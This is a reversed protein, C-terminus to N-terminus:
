SRPHVYFGVVLTQLGLKGLFCLLEQALLASSRSKSGWCECLFGSATCSGGWAPPFASILLGQLESALSDLQM